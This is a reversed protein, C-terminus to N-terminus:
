VTEDLKEDLTELNTWENDFPIIDLDILSSIVKAERTFATEGKDPIITLLEFKIDFTGSKIKSIEDNKSPLLPDDEKLIVNWPFINIGEVIELENAFNFNQEKNSIYVTL